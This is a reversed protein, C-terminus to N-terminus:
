YTNPTSTDSPIPTPTIFVENTPVPTLSQEYQYRQQMYNRMNNQFDRNTVTGRIVMAAIFFAFFMACIAIVVPLSIIIKLWTPWEKMWFWMLILGVPYVFLLLVIVVIMRTEFSIEKSTSPSAIKRATSKRAPM